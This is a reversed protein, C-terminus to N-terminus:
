GWSVMVMIVVMADGDADGDDDGVQVAPGSKQRRVPIGGDSKSFTVELLLHPVLSCLAQQASTSKENCLVYLRQMQMIYLDDDSVQIAADDGPM